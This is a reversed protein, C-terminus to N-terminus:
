PSIASRTPRQAQPELAKCDEPWRIPTLLPNPSSTTTEVGSSAQEKAAATAKSKAIEADYAKTFAGGVEAGFDSFGGKM